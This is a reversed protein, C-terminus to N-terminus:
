FYPLAQQFVHLSNSSHRERKNSTENGLIFPRIILYVQPVRRKNYKLNSKEKFIM